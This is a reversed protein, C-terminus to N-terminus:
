DNVFVTSYEAFVVSRDFIEVGSTPGSDSDTTVASPAIETPVAECGGQSEAPQSANM